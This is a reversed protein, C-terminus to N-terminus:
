QDGVVFSGTQGKSKYGTKTDHACVRYALEDGLSAEILMSGAFVNRVIEAQDCNAPPEMTARNIAFRKEYNTIGEDSLGAYFRIDWHADSALSEDVEVHHSAITLEPRGDNKRPDTGCHTLVLLAATIFPWYLVLRLYDAPAQGNYCALCCDGKPSSYLEDTQELCLPCEM